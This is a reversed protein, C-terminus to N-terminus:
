KRRKIATARVLEEIKREQKQVKAYNLFTIIGFFMIAMAVYLDTIRAFKLTQTIRSFTDPFGVLLAAVVWVAAWFIFAARTYNNRKYFLFTMYLMILMFVIGVIQIGLVM